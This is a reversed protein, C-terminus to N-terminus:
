RSASFFYVISRVSLASCPLISGIIPRSSSIRRMTCIRWRRVFFLGTMIPSGPTPLVAKTSPRACRITFASTGSLMFFLRKNASSRAAKNAPALNRPSKSSRKFATSLSIALDSPETMRNISSSCVMTPAPAASPDISAPFISLGANARPSSCQM